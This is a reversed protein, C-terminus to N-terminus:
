LAIKAIHYLLSRIRRRQRLSPHHPQPQLHHPAQHAVDGQGHHGKGLEEVLHDGMPGFQRAYEARGFYLTDVSM